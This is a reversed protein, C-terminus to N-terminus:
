GADLRRTALGVLRLVEEIENSDNFRLEIYPSSAARRPHATSDAHHTLGQEKILAKGLLLDLENGRHFHAIEKGRYDVTTFGDDRDPWVKVTIDPQAALASILAQKPSDM